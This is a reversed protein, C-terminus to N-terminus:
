ISEDPLLDIDDEEILEEAEDGTMGDLTVLEEDYYDRIVDLIDSLLGVRFEIVYSGFEELKRDLGPMDPEYAVVTMINEEVELPSVGYHLLFEKPMSRVLGTDFFYGHVDVAPVQYLQSLAILLDEKSVIGTSLVFEDFSADSQDGFNQVMAQAEHADIVKNEVLIEVLDPVFKKGSEIM